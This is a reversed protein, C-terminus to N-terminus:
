GTVSVVTSGVTQGGDGYEVLGLYRRGAALGSWGVTVTAAQGTTVEQSAPTVTLNGNSAPGVVWGHHVVDVPATSAAAFLDVFVLYDGPQNVTISEQATPGGSNGVLTLEGGDGVAYAYLDIDTGAPVDADFTAFRAVKAGDPVTVAIAKAQVSEAPEDADFTIAPDAVLSLHAPTSPELGFGAATLTGTFGAIVTQAASGSPGSGSAEAPAAVPVPRVAIPSRVAHGRADLWTLSGFSYEGLPATTRTVTVKYTATKGPKVVLVTPSVKVKFGAPAQVKPAYVGVKSDVNTVTRTVTQIGAVDGIAISPSNYDSRDPTGVLECSDQGNALELHVGIGCAYQLWQVPGSDYVLGPNFAGRAAVEGAGYDLPTAAGDAAQDGIPERRNDRPSATTMLASKVAMPSWGPHKALLLAAIGAIHPAAMSTGSSAGWLNGASTPPAVGAVVDVGPATVDPKLLDGGSSVSPGRSSFGAILPAQVKASSEASITAAAGATAAYAKIQPGVVDDVHISPVFHYDANLTNPTPNFLIMGAGGANKVTQSKDVRNNVGRQCLVIKGTVKAPDLSGAICVAADTTSSGAAAAAAADVLPSSAAGPGVGVGDFTRGDGLTVTKASSRDHTGAAATTVWPMANDVTSPGPGANGASTAVFVGAFAANLFALESPGFSDVNDGISYNIVDVGDAVAQNIAAVIDATSGVSQTGAANAYLVKYISLRAAPAMGSVQGVVTGNITATVGHNGAATSSTHSGHGFYDRPSDFEGLNAHSLGGANYWRAGLVKNNCTVPPGEVGPDCVTGHWKADVVAQDPRPTPLPGVSPNEPWFGSDIVGVIIGEGAREPSGFQAKWAGGRGDLGVFTPTTFTDSTVLRDKWVRAVGPTQRLRLVEATTLKAAFGAFVTEYDYVKRDAAVGARKLVGDRTQALHQRYSRVNGAAPDIKKGSPPRTAAIGAVGGEYTAIPADVTQVIYLEQPTTTRAVANGSATLTFATLTAAALLVTAPRRWGATVRSM